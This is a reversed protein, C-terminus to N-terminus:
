TVDPAGNAGLQADFRAMTGMREVEVAAFGADRLWREVDVAGGSPGLVGLVRAGVRLPLYRPGSDILFVTGVFRGGPRLCRAVEAAATDPAPVCHLGAYSLCLDFTGDPFPMRQMDVQALAVRTGRHAAVSATRDLMGRSIDAAVYRVDRGRSLRRVALGGGCPVDLVAAGDPLRDLLDLGAFLARTDVGFIARGLPRRLAEREVAYDYVRAWPHGRRWVESVDPVGTV